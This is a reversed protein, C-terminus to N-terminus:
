ETWGRINILMKNITAAGSRVEIQFGSPVVGIEHAIDLVLPPDFNFSRTESRLLGTHWVVKQTPRGNLLKVYSNPDVASISTNIDMYSIYLIQGEPPAHMTNNQTGAVLNTVELITSYLTQPNLKYENNGIKTKSYGQYKIGKDEYPPITASEETSIVTSLTPPKYAKEAM